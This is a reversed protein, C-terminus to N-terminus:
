IFYIEQRDWEICLYKVRNKLIYYDKIDKQYEHIKWLSFSLEFDLLPQPTQLRYFTKKRGSTSKLYGAEKINSIDLTDPISRYVHSTDDVLEYVKMEIAKPSIDFGICDIKLMDKEYKYSGRLQLITYMKSIYEKVTNEDTHYTGVYFKMRGSASDIAIHFPESVFVSFIAEIKWVDEWSIGSYELIYSYINQKQSNNPFWKLAKSVKDDQNSLTFEVSSGEQSFASLFHTIPIM